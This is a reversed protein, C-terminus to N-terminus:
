NPHFLNKFTAPSMANFRWKLAMRVAGATSRHKLGKFGLTMLHNCKSHETGDMGSKDNEIESM